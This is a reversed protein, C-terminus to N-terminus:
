RYALSRHTTIICPVLRIPLTAEYSTSVIMCVAVYLSDQRITFLIERLFLFSSTSGQETPRLGHFNPLFQFLM